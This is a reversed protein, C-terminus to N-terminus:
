KRIKTKSCLDILEDKDLNGVILFVHGDSRWIVSSLGSDSVYLYEQGNEGTVYEFTVGSDFYVDKYASEKYQSFFLMDNGNTYTYGAHDTDIYSDMLTYGEPLEALEYIRGMGIRGDGSENNVVIEEKDSGIIYIILDHIPTKAAGICFGAVFLFAAALVLKWSLAKRRHSTIKGGESILSTMKTEFADSFRHRDSIEDCSSYEELMPEYALAAARSLKDNKM